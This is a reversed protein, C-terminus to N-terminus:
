ILTIIWMAALMLFGAISIYIGTDYMDRISKILGLANFIGGIVTFLLLMKQLGTASMTSKLAMTSLLGVASATSGLLSYVLAWGSGLGGDGWSHNIYNIIMGIVGLVIFMTVIPDEPLQKRQQRYQKRLGTKSKNPTQNLTPQHRTKKLEVSPNLDFENIPNKSNISHDIREMTRSVTSESFDKPAITTPEQKSPCKAIMSGDGRDNRSVSKAKKSNLTPWQISLGGTYRRQQIQCGQTVLLSTIILFYFYKKYPKM